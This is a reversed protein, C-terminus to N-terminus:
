VGRMRNAKENMHKSKPGAISKSTIYAECGLVHGIWLHNMTVPLIPPGDRGDDDMMTVPSLIRPRSGTGSVYQAAVMLKRRDALGDRRSGDVVERSEPPWGDHFDGGVEM